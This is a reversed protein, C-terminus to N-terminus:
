AHSEGSRARARGPALHAKARYMATDAEGILEGCGAGGAKFLASGISVSMAVLRGDLLYPASLRARIKQVVADADEPGGIEPVMIVFEDGGYRCATDCGRICGSLREAVQQLLQDGAAHGLEDNISKFHDLDLLLLGVAKHQREAQLMAQELRDLLLSRNALGTLPDHYALHRVRAAERELRAVRRVLRANRRSLLKIYRRLDAGPTNVVM